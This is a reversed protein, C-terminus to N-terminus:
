DRARLCYAPGGCLTCFCATSADYLPCCAATTVACSSKCPSCSTCHCHCHTQVVRTHLAAHRNCWSTAVSARSQVMRLIHGDYTPIRVVYRRRLLFGLQKKVCNRVLTFFNDFLKPGVHGVAECALSLLEHAHQGRGQSNTIDQLLATLTREGVPVSTHSADLIGSWRLQDLGGFPLRKNLTPSLARVWWREPQGGHVMPPVRQVGLMTMCAPGHKALVRALSPLKGFAMLGRVRRHRLGIFHNKLVRAARLHERYRALLSRLGTICGTQGVYPPHPGCMVYILRDPEDLDWDHPLRSLRAIRQLTRDPSRHLLRNSELM